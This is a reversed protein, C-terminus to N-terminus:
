WLLSKRRPYDTFGYLYVQSLSEGLSAVRKIIAINDHAEILHSVFKSGTSIMNRRPLDYLLVACNQEIFFLLQTFFEIFIM